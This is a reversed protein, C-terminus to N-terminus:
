SVVSIQIRENNMAFRFAGGRLVDEFLFDALFFAERLVLPEERAEEEMALRNILIITVPHSDRVLTKMRVSARHSCRNRVWEPRSMKM